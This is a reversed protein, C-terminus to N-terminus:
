DWGLIQCMDTEEKLRSIKGDKRELEIVVGRICGWGYYAVRFDQDPRTAVKLPNKPMTEKPFRYSVARVEAKRAAPMDLWLAFDYWKKGRSDTRKEIAEVKVQVSAALDDETGDVGQPPRVSVTPTLQQAAMGPGLVGLVRLESICIERWSKRSGPVTERVVLRYTGGPQGPPQGPRDLSIGQLSRDEPDLTFTGFSESGRLVEVQRVRHNLVFLDGDHDQKLFGATLEIRRIRAAEPVTFEITAGVLDGSRSNWATELDGDLMGEARFKKNTAASSVVLASPTSHLLDVMGPPIPPLSPRGARPSVPAPPDSQAPRGPVSSSSAGKRAVWLGGGAGLLAVAAVAGVLVGRKGPAPRDVQAAAGGLTSPVAGQSAAPASRQMAQRSQSPIPAAGLERVVDAMAPREAPDKALMRRILADLGAPIAPNLDRPPAAPQFMHHAIIEGLGEASFPLRGTTMQYLMLGLSYVDSRDNVQGAGRCQEPSMYHPTGMM